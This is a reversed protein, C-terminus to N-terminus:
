LVFIWLLAFVVGIPVLAMSALREFRDDDEEERGM